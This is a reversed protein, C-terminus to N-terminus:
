KPTPKKTPTSAADTPRGGEPIAVPANTEAPPPPPLGLASRLLMQLEPHLDGKPDLMRNLVEQKIEALEPMPLRERAGKYQTRDIFNQRVVAALRKYGEAQEDLGQALSAYYNSVLGELMAKVRDPSTENVDESIKAVAWEQASNADPFANTGYKETGYAFWKKAENERNHIFLFYVADRMMNKHANGIHDRMEADEAMFKEYARSTNEVIALNPGLQPVKRLKGEIVLQNTIFRGRQFSTLLPQYIARRLTILQAEPKDSLKCVRLGVSAWYIAHTEPLRWELPGYQDDVEKMMRSDMKYHNTLISVRAQMERTQPSSLADFDPHGSGLVNNMEAAWESKYTMHADDLYAGIKHQFLWALERYMLVEHPNYRLGDDRLLEIGKRVRLWRDMHNPFKVSINYALNWAQNVWVQTFHPQLKTIWNALQSMEFYKGNEQLEAARIWLINAILGRFGGLAITTFALVPPANELVATRTLDMKERDRNLRSQMLGALAIFGVM